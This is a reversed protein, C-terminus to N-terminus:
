TVKYIHGTARTDISVEVQDLTSSMIFNYSPNPDAQKSSYVRLM